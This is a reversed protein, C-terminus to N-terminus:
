VAGCSVPNNAPGYLYTRKIWLTPSYMKPSEISTAEKQYLFEKPLCATGHIRVDSNVCIEMRPGICCWKSPTTQLGTYTLVSKVSLLSYMNPSEM